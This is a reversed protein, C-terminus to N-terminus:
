RSFGEKKLDKLIITKKSDQFLYLKPYQPWLITDVFRKPVKVMVTTHWRYPSYRRCLVIFLKTSWLNQLTFTYEIAYDSTLKEKIRKVAEAVEM